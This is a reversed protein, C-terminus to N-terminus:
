KKKEGPPPTEMEIAKRLLRVGEEVSDRVARTTITAGTIASVANEGLLGQRLAENDARWEGKKSIAIPKATDLGSFQQEFWPASPAPRAGNRMNTYAAPVNRQKGGRKVARRAGTNSQQIVTLAIIKGAEDVSVMSRVQGSYGAKSTEFAYARVTERGGAKRRYRLRVGERRDYRKGKEIMRYGLGEASGRRLAEEKGARYAGRDENRIKNIHSLAMTAIFGIIALILAPKIIDNFLM